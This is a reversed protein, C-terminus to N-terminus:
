TPVSTKLNIIITNRAAWFSFTFSSTARRSSIGEAEIIKNKKQHSAKETKCFDQNTEELQQHKTSNKLVNFWVIWWKSNWSHQYVSFWSIMPSNPQLSLVRHPQESGRAVTSYSPGRERERAQRGAQRCADNLQGVSHEIHSHLPSCLCLCAGLVESISNTKKIAWEACQVYIHSFPARNHYNFSSGTLRRSNTTIKQM